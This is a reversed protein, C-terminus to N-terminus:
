FKNSSRTNNNERVRRSGGFSYGQTSSTMETLTSTGSTTSRHRAQKVKTDDHLFDSLEEIQRELIKKKLLFLIRSSYSVNAISTTSVIAAYM